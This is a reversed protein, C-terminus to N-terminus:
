EDYVSTKQIIKRYGYRFGPVVHMGKVMLCIQSPLSLKTRHISNYLNIYNNLIENGHGGNNKQLKEAAERGIGNDEVVIVIHSTDSDINVKLSCDVKKHMLGHPIANEVYTQIILKPIRISIDTESSVELSFSFKNDFRMNEMTLYTKIFRIEEDIMWDTQTGAVLASRLMDSFHNLYEYASEKEDKYILSGITNLVNFTFHPQLQNQVTQLQLTRIRQESFL